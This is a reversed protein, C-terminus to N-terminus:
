STKNQVGKIWVLIHAFRCEGRQSLHNLNGDSRTNIPYFCGLTINRQFTTGITQSSLYLKVQHPARYTSERSAVTHKIQNKVLHLPKTNKQYKKLVM